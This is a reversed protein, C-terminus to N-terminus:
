HLIKMSMMNMVSKKLLTLAHSKMVQSKFLKWTWSQFIYFMKTSYNVNIKFDISMKGEGSFNSALLPVSSSADCDNESQVTSYSLKGNIKAKKCISNSLRDLSDTKGNTAHFPHIKKLGKKM